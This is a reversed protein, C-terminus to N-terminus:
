PAAFMGAVQDLDDHQNYFHLSLRVRGARAAAVVGAERLRALVARDDGVPVSVITSRHEPAHPVFEPCALALADHLHATLARNRELVAEVGLETFVGLAADDGLAAFWALSTDFKSATPSLDMQPGYFSAAPNRAAKWGPLVPSLLDCLERRVFLYGMGRSGLLFKHGAAALFDVGERRVDIAIAGAAQCADVFLWAGCRDAVDRLTALDARYGTASEVASVAILRTGADAAARYSDAPVGAPDSAITRVEYGRERLLLWPYYNSSFEGEAVVVNEGHGAQGLNAAVVGAATSVAPVIAVEEPSAGIIGAFRARASEGAAEAVQWDFRGEVWQALAKEYAARAPQCGVAMTATNLYITAGLQPFLRRLVEPTVDGM